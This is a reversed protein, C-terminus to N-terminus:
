AHRSLKMESCSKASMAALPNLQTRRGNPAHHTSPAPTSAEGNTRASPYRSLANSQASACPSATMRSRCEAGPKWDPWWTRCVRPFGICAVLWMDTKHRRNPAALYSGTVRGRRIRQQRCKHKVRGSCARTRHGISRDYRSRM